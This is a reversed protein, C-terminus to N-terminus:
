SQGASVTVAASHADVLDELVSFGALDGELVAELLLVFFLLEPVVTGKTRQAVDHADPHPEARGGVLHRRLSVLDEGLDVVGHEGLEAFAFEPILVEWAVNEWEIDVQLLSGLVGAVLHFHLTGIAVVGGSEPEPLKLVLLVSIRRLQLRQGIIQKLVEPIRALRLRDRCSLLLLQVVLLLLVVFFLLALSSLGLFLELLAFGLLLSLSLLLQEFLLLVRGLQLNVEAGHVEIEVLYTACGICKRM